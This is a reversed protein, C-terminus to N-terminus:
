KTISDSSKSTAKSKIIINLMKKKVKLNIKIKYFDLADRSINNDLQQRVTLM